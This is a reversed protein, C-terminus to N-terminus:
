RRAGGQQAVGVPSAPVYEWVQAAPGNITARQRSDIGPVGRRFRAEASHLEPRGRHGDVVETRWFWFKYGEPNDRCAEVSCLDTVSDFAVDIRTKEGYRQTPSDPHRPDHAQRYEAGLKDDSLATVVRWAYDATAHSYAERHRVYNWITNMANDAKVTAPLAEWRHSSAIVGNETIPVFEVEQRIEPAVARAVWGSAIMPVALVLALAKLFERQTRKQAQARMEAAVTAYHALDEGPRVVHLGGHEAAAADTTTASM